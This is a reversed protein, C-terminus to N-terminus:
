SFMRWPEDDPRVVLPEPIKGDGVNNSARQFIHLELQWLRRNVQLLDAFKIMLGCPITAGFPRALALLHASIDAVPNLTGGVTNSDASLAISYLRSARM